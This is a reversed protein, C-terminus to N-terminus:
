WCWCNTNEGMLLSMGLPLIHHAHNKKKSISSWREELNCHAIKFLDKKTLVTSTIVGARM